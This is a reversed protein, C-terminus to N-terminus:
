RMRETRDNRVFCQVSMGFQPRVEEECETGWQGQRLSHEMAEAGCGVAGNRMEM